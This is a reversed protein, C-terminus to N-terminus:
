ITNLSRFHKTHREETLYVGIKPGCISVTNHLSGHLSLGVFWGSWEVGSWLSWRWEMVEIWVRQPLFARSSARRFSRFM